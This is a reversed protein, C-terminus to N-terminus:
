IASSLTATDGRVGEKLISHAANVMCNQNLKNELVGMYMNFTM